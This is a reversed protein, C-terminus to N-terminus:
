MGDVLVECELGWKRKLTMAKSKGGNVKLDKRRCVEVFSGMMVMIEEESESCLVLDFAYLLGPLEERREGGSIM